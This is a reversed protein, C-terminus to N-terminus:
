EIVAFNELIGEGVERCKVFDEERVAYGGGRGLGLGLGGGLM